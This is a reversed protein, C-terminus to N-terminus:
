KEDEWEAKHEEWWEPFNPDKPSLTPVIDKRIIATDNDKKSIPSGLALADNLGLYLLEELSGKSQPWVTGRYNTRFDDVSLRRSKNEGTHIVKSQGYLYRINAQDKLLTDKDFEVILEDESSYGLITSFLATRTINKSGEKRLCRNFIAHVNGETLEM